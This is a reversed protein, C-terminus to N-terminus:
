RGARRSLLYNQCKQNIAFVVFQSASARATTAAGAWTPTATTWTATTPTAAITSRLVGSTLATASSTTSVTGLLTYFNNTCLYIKKSM